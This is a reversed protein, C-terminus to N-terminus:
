KSAALVSMQQQLTAARADSIIGKAVLLGVIQAFRPDDLDVYAAKNFVSVAWFVDADNLPAGSSSAGSADPHFRNMDSWELPTLLSLVDAHTLRRNSQVVTFVGSDADYLEGGRLQGEEVPVQLLYGDPALAPHSAPLEFECIATVRHTARNIQAFLRM